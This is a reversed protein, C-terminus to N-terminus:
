SAKRFTSATQQHQLAAAIFAQFLPHPKFPKSGFEPHYQVAIFWPHNINEVIEPLVGDPSLGSFRLGVAEFQSRYGLNVEYRHRHREHIVDQQYIRAALSNANLQCPYLGLRMTGGMDDNASRQELREGSRWETLLGVVPHPTEGFETSHADTLGLLNRAAEVVALQMGLCIGLFPVGHTRAYAIAAMKGATGRVGYGGPVLIAQYPELRAAIQMSDLPQLRGDVESQTELEEANIWDVEVRADHAIGGHLLAEALSKYADQLSTYKGVVAIKVQQQPRMVLDVVQQWPKLDPMPDMPLGFHDCVERDLGAAAYSLPVQYITEVDLAEIVRNPPLNCFLALKRRADEPIPRDSRCLLLDPQIGLSQLEKVSHQSPKTKLEGASAIYPLLTLHISMVHKHGVEHQFQRFAELFPLSEIDGVTGGVECILFDLDPELDARIAEKIADTIHPIVQVTAGLYDGRREKAIVKAYIQGTSIADSRRCHVGTFREYHGLDLDTEAGDDTVFVEGHQYPSMTGPDVNLYPEFKRLRVKYGRAKLLAALSAAAIGKGLSSLVGGTVFLTRTTTQM